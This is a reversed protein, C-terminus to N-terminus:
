LVEWADVFLSGGTLGFELSSFYGEANPLTSSTLMILGPAGLAAPTWGKGDRVMVPEQYLQFHPIWRKGDIRYYRVQIVCLLIRQENVGRYLNVARDPPRASARLADGPLIAIREQSKGQHPSPVVGPSLPVEVPLRDRFNRYEITMVNAPAQAQGVTAPTAIILCCLLTLLVAALRKPVKLM